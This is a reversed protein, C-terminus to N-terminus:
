VDNWRAPAVRPGLKPSVGLQPLRCPEDFEFVREVPLDFVYSIRFALDLSPIQKDHELAYITQRTVGTKIALEKQRIDREKRLAVLNSKM